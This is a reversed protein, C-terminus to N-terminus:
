NWRREENKTQARWLNKLLPLITLGTKSSIWTSWWSLIVLRSAAYQQLECSIQYPWKDQGTRISSSAYNWCKRFWQSKSVLLVKSPLEKGSVPCIMSRHHLSLSNLQSSYSNCSKSVALTLALWKIEVQCASVSSSGPRLVTIIVQTELTQSTAHRAEVWRIWQSRTCAWIRQSSCMTLQVPWRTMWLISLVM